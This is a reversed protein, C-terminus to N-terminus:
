VIFFGEDTFPCPSDLMTTGGWVPYEPWGDMDAEQLPPVGDSGVWGRKWGAAWFHYETGVYKYRNGGIGARQFTEHSKSDEDICKLYKRFIGM